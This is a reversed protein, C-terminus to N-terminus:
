HGPLDVTLPAITLTGYKGSMRYRGAPLASHRPTGTLNYDFVERKTEGPQFAVASYDLALRSDVPGGGLGGVQATFSYIPSLQFTAPLDIMIADSRNNRVEVIVQFFGSDVSMSPQAPDLFVNISLVESPFHVWGAFPALDQKDPVCRTECRVVGRCKGLFQERPHGKGKVLAHLMEHRVVQGDLEVYHTLVIRNSGQSWYATAEEGDVILTTEPTDYWSIKNFDGKLGSCAETQAWWKQYVLPPSMRETVPSLSPDVITRECAIISGSALSWVFLLRLTQRM